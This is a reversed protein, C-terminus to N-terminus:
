CEDLIGDPCVSDFSSGSDLGNSVPSSLFNLSQDTIFKIINLHPVLSHEKMVRRSLSNPTQGSCDVIYLNTGVKKQGKAVTRIWGGLSSLEMEAVVSIAVTDKKLSSSSLVGANL